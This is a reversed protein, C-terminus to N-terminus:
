YDAADHFGSGWEEDDIKLRIQEMKLFRDIVKVKDTLSAEDDAMVSALLEELYNQLDPNVEKRKAKKVM